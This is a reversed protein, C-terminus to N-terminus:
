GPIVDPWGKKSTGAPFAALAEKIAMAALNTPALPRLSGQIPAAWQLHPLRLRNGDEPM